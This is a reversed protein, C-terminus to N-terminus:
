KWIKTRKAFVTTLIPNTKVYIELRHHASEIHRLHAYHHKHLSSLRRAYSSDSRRMYNKVMLGNLFYVLVGAENKLKDILEDVTEVKKGGQRKPPEEVRVTQLRPTVDVSLSTPTLKDLPKKKAKM